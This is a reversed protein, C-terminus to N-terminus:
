GSVVSSGTLTALFTTFSALLVTMVEETVGTLTSLGEVITNSLESTEVQTWDTGFVFDVVNDVLDTCAGFFGGLLCSGAADIKYLEVLTQIQSETFEPKGCERLKEEFEEVKEKICEENGQVGAQIVPMLTAIDTEQITANPTGLSDIWDLSELICKDMEAKRQLDKLMKKYSTCKKGGNGKGENGKGGNGKGGNGKGGNGKGSNGKDANKGKGGKGARGFKEPKNGYSEKMDYFGCEYLDTDLRTPISLTSWLTCVAVQEPADLKFTQVAATVLGLILVHRMMISGGVTGM